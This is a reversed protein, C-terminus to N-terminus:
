LLGLEAKIYATAIRSLRSKDRLAADYEDDVAKAADHRDIIEQARARILDEADGAGCRDALRLISRAALSAMFLGHRFEVLRRVRLERLDDIKTM